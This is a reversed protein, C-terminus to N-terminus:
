RAKVTDPEPFEVGYTDVEIKEFYITEIPNNYKNVKVRSIEDLVELGETVTGFVTYKGDLDRNDTLMFFFQSGETDYLETDERVESSVNRSMSVAGRVHKLTNKVRNETFEGEIRYNPGGTGDGKPDGGQVMYNAGVRQITLGDYFGTNALYMFNLCTNPAQDFQLEFKVVGGTSFTVTAVPNKSLGFDSLQYKKEKWKKGCSTCLVVITLLLIATRVARKM